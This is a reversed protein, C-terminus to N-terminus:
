RTVSFALRVTTLNDLEGLWTDLLGEPTDMVGGAVFYMTTSENCLWFTTLNEKIEECNM